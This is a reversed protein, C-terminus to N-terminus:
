LRRLPIRLQASLAKALGPNSNELMEQMQEKYGFM